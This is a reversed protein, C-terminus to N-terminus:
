LSPSGVRTSVVRFRGDGTVRHSVPWHRLVGDGFFPALLRDIRVGASVEPLVDVVPLTDTGSADVGLLEEIEGFVLFQEALLREDDDTGVVDATEFVTPSDVYIARGARGADFRVVTGPRVWM